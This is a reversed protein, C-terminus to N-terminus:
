RNNPGRAADKQGYFIAPDFESLGCLSEANAREFGGLVGSKSVCRNVVRCVNHVVDGEDGVERCIGYDVRKSVSVLMEQSIATYEAVCLDM